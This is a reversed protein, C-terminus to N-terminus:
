MLDTGVIKYSDIVCIHSRNTSLDTLYATNAHGFGSQRIRQGAHGHHERPYIIDIVRRKHARWLQRLRRHRSQRDLFTPFLTYRSANWHNANPHKWRPELCLLCERILECRVYGHVRMHCIVCVHMDDTCVDELYRLQGTVLCAKLVCAYATHHKFFYNFSM